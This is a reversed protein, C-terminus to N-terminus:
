DTFPWHGMQDSVHVTGPGVRAELGRLLAQEELLPPADPWYRLGIEVNVLATAVAMRGEELRGTILASVAVGRLALLYLHLHEGAREAEFLRMADRLAQRGCQLAAEDQRAASRASAAELRARVDTRLEEISARMGGLARSFGSLRAYQM